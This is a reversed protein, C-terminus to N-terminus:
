KYYSYRYIEELRKKSLFLHKIERLMSKVPYNILYYIDLNTANLLKDNRSAKWSGIGLHIACTKCNLHLSNFAFIDPEFIAMNYKEIYQFKPTYRFGFDEAIKAMLADIIINNENDANYSKTQYWHLCSIIYPHSKSSLIVGAAIVLGRMYLDKTYPLLTQPNIKHYHKSASGPYFEVSTVFDYKLFEDFPKLVKMDADLFIGGETCLAYLRVYDAVFAYKKAAYATRTWETSEVDFNDENWLKLQYDPMKKKWGEICWKVVPPMEGRGFWCYHIIKPIM